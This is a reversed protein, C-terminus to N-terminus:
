KSALDKLHEVNERVRELKLNVSVRMEPHIPEVDEFLDNLTHNLSEYTSDVDGLHVIRQDTVEGIVKAIRDRISFYNKKWEVMSLQVDKNAVMDFWESKIKTTHNALHLDFVYRCVGTSPNEFIIPGIGLIYKDPILHGFINM